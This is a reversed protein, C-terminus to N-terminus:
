AAAALAGYWYPQWDVVPVTASRRRPKTDRASATGETLDKFQVDKLKAEEATWWDLGSANLKETLRDQARYHRIFRRFLEELHAVVEAQTAGHAYLGLEEYRGVVVGTATEGFQPKVAVVVTGIAM